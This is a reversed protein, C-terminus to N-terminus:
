NKKGGIVKHQSKVNKKLGDATKHEAASKAPAEEAVPASDAASESDSAPAEEVAPAEASTPEEIVVEEVKAEDEGLLKKYSALANENKIVSPDLAKMRELAEDRTILSSEFDSLVYWIEHCNADNFMVYWKPYDKYKDCNCYEYTKQCLICKRNRVM